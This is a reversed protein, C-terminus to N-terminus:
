HHQSLPSLPMLRQRGGSVFTVGFRVSAELTLGSATFKGSASPVLEQVSTESTTKKICRCFCLLSCFILLHSQM